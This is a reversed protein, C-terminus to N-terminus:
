GLGAKVYACGNWFKWRFRLDQIRIWGGLLCLLEGGADLEPGDLM